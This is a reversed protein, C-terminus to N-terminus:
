PDGRLGTLADLLHEVRDDFADGRRGTFRVRGRTRQDEVRGVILVAPDDREHTDDVAREGRALRQPRHRLSRSELRLLEAEERRRHPRAVPEGGALDTVHDRAQLVNRFQADSVRERRLSPRGGLRERAVLVHLGHDEGAEERRVGVVVRLKAVRELAQLQVVRRQEVLRLRGLREAEAEPAAEEAKQVHLDDALPELALEIEVQEHRRRVHGVPHLRWVAFPPLHVCGRVHRRLDVLDFLRVDLGRDDDRLFVDARHHLQVVLAAAAEVVELVQRLITDVQRVLQRERLDDKVVVVLQLRARTSVRAEVVVHDAEAFPIERADVHQDGALWDVRERQDDM